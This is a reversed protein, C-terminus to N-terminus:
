WKNYRREGRGIRCVYRKPHSHCYMDALSQNTHSLCLSIMTFPAFDLHAVVNLWVITSFTAQRSRLQVNWEKPISGNNFYPIEGITLM